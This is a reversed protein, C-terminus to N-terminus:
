RGVLWEIVRRRPPRSADKYFHVEVTDLPGYVGIKSAVGPIRATKKGPLSARFTVEFAERCRELFDALREDAEDAAFTAQVRLPYSRCDNRLVVEREDDVYRFVEHTDADRLSQILDDRSTFVAPAHPDTM